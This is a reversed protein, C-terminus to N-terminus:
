NLYIFPYEYESKRKKFVKTISQLTFLFRKFHQKLHLPQYSTPLGETDSKYDFILLITILLLMFNNIVKNILKASSNFGQM